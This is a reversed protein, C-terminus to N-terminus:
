AFLVKARYADDWAAKNQKKPLSLKFGEREAYTDVCSKRWLPM